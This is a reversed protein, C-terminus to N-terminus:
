QNRKKMKNKILNNLEYLGISILTGFVFAVIPGCWSYVWDPFDFLYLADTAVIGFLLHFLYIYLSYKRGVKGIFGYEKAGPLKLAILFLELMSIIKFPQAIDFGVAKIYVTVYMMITSVTFIIINSILPSKLFADKKYAIYSGLMMIPLGSAIFISSIHWDVDYSNVYTEVGVRILILIPLAYYAYKMVKFRHLVYLILYSYLLAVMFWLQDGSIFSFDGLLFLRPFLWPNKFSNLFYDFEDTVLRLPIVLVFYILFVIILIKLNRKFRRLINKSAIEDDKNYSSYGSILFFFIVGCIGMTSFIPGVPYPFPFHVLIISLAFLAKLFDFTYNRSKINVDKYPLLIQM